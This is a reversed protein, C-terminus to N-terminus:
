RWKGSNFLFFNFSKNRSYFLGQHTRFIPCDLLLTTLYDDVDNDDDNDDYGYDDDDDDNNDDDDYDDDNDITARQQERYSETTIRQKIAVGAIGATWWDTLLM